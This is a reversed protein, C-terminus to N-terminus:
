HQFIPSHSTLLSYLKASSNSLLWSTKTPSVVKCVLNSAMSNRLKNCLKCNSYKCQTSHSLVVLCRPSSCSSKVRPSNCSNHNNALFNFTGLQDLPNVAWHVGLETALSSYMPLLTKLRDSTGWQHNSNRSVKIEVKLDGTARLTGRLHAATDMAEAVSSIRNAVLLMAQAMPRLWPHLSNFDVLAVAKLPVVVLARPWVRAGVM